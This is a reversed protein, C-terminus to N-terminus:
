PCMAHRSVALQAHLEHVRQASAGLRRDEIRGQEVLEYAIRGLDGYAQALDHELETMHVSQRARSTAQEAGAKLKDIM